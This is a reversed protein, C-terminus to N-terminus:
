CQVTASRQHQDLAAGISSMVRYKNIALVSFRYWVPATGVSLM